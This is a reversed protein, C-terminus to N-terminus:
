LSIGKWWDADAKRLEEMIRRRQARNPEGDPTRTPIRALEDVVAAAVRKRTGRDQAWLLVVEPQQLMWRQLKDLLREMALEAEVESGVPVTM